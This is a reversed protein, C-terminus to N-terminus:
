QDAQHLAMKADPPTAPGVNVTYEICLRYQQQFNGQRYM